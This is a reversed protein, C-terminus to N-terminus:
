FNDGFVLVNEDCQRPKPTWERMLDFCYKIFNAHDGPSQLKHVPVVQLMLQIVPPTCEISVILLNRFWLVLFFRRHIPTVEAETIGANIEISYACM